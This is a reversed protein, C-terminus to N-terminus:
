MVGHKKDFSNRSNSKTNGKAQKTGRCHLFVHVSKCSNCAIAWTDFVVVTQYREGTDHTIRVIAHMYTIKGVSYMSRLMDKFQENDM